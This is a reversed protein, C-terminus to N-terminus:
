AAKAATPLTASNASAAGFVPLKVTFTTGHGLLSEVRIRGQHREIIERCISLGLGSGGRGTDDPGPKTTFFPEFIRGLMEPAIGMGTDHISIEVMGSARNNAVGVRLRGGKPMAQRANIILNMLVQEIQTSVAEVVPRDRYDRELRVQHKSLDKELVVLVEELLSVVDTPEKIEPCNRSLSLIGSTVKGARRTATLIKDFARAKAEDDEAQMGMKAHNLIITLINNFEHAISSAVAGLGASRQLHELKARDIVLTDSASKSPDVDDRRMCEEGLGRPRGQDM